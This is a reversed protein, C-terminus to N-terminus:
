HGRAVIPVCVYISVRSTDTEVGLESLIESTVRNLIQCEGTRLVNERGAASHLDLPFLEDDDHAEVGAEIRRVVTIRRVTQENEFMFETCYEALKATALRALKDITTRLDASSALISITNFLCRAADM